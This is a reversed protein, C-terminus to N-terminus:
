AKMIISFINQSAYNKFIIKSCAPDKAVIHVPESHCFVELGNLGGTGEDGVPRWLSVTQPHPFLIFEVQDTRADHCYLESSFSHCM